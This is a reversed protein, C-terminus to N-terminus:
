AITTRDNRFVLYKNDYYGEVSDIIYRDVTYDLLKFDFNSNKINLLIDDGAGPTCYCIPIASTYDLEVYSGEQISRMWLPLYNRERRTSEMSRLRKRWISISSPFKAVTGPDGALIDTRDISSDFPIPRNWFPNDISYKDRSYFDNNNDITVKVNSPSTVIKFPLHTKGKELPDLLEVYIIEYVVNNTGPEKAVAKKVQGLNFRKPKNNLGMVSIYEVAQKTEIGAYILSTLTRQIGFNPDGLRYILRPDFISNDNIFNKFYDRQQQKMFPKVVINSYYTDNPITILLTFDKTIASYGLVDRAKITFNFIRDFTTEFEDIVSIGIRTNTEQNYDTITTPTSEEVSFKYKEWNDLAFATASKHDATARYFTPSGKLVGTSPTMAKGEGLNYYSFYNLPTLQTQAEYTLIDTAVSILGTGFNGPNETFGLTITNLSSDVAFFEGNYKSNSNGNIKYLFETGTLLTFTLDNVGDLGNLNNGSITVTDGPLYGTGPELLTITVLGNYAFTGNSGKFIKFKAGSGKGSTNKQEVLNFTNSSTSGSTGKILTFRPALPAVVQSPISFKVRYYNDTNEILTVSNLKITDLIIEIGSYYNFDLLSSSIKVIDKNKFSHVGQTVLSAINKRRIVSKINSVNDRKVVDKKRYQKLSKWFSKYVNQDRLQNVKGVIEGDLNLDLGPPLKGQELTYFIGSNAYTTAAKVFLTSPYGVDISGLASPSQWNIFSEVEGLVDVTFMRRSIATETGQGFRIAKVTFNFRETIAPQYPVLGFVEGTATDFDMGPPLKSEDGIFIPSLNPIAADLNKDVTLRYSDGGLADVEVIEYTTGTSGVFDLNFNIKQGVAPVGSSKILRIKDSGLRNDGSAERQTLGNILPNVSALEYIVPGLENYMGEYIDIKFTQYNNARRLGLYNPTTFIPVRLYTVDATYTGQGAQMIVNDARFFDDGVVYIRFKRKTVTDGDTITAIFEYNRNLKRPRLTDVSFDYTVLEYVYTDYGNTPRVGFDYAVVDYLSADYTGDGQKQPVALLPQIFGTIRGDPLLRLGPPLEGEDSAIFFNLEQGAATDTDSASLKFDIFSSDIVYYADNAGVPLAGAPTLWNPEDSGVITITFTRDSIDVGDSARIVFKYETPRVVEFPTGIISTGNLRLGAPLKGSILKLRTNLPLQEVVPLPISITKREDQSVTSAIGTGQIATGTGLKARSATFEDGVKYTIDTTGAVLNWDTDGLTKITYHKGSVIFGSLVLGTGSAIFVTGVNNNEAGLLKFDTNGAQTIVYQEGIVFEGPTTRTGVGPIKGLNYNSDKTWVTLAM